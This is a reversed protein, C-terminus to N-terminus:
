KKEYCEDINNLYHIYIHIYFFSYSNLMHEM